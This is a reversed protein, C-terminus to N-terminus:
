FKKWALFRLEGDLLFLQLFFNMLIRIPHLHYILLWRLRKSPSLDLAALLRKLSVPSFFVIHAEKKAERWGSRLLRANLGRINPTSFYCWGGTKLRTSLKKLDDWPAPLHEIVQLSIVGDFILDAPLNELSPYVPLGLKQIHDLGYPEIGVAEAGMERLAKLLDGKGAGFELIKLGKLNPRNLEHTLRKVYKRALLLDTTGTESINAEPEAWGKTYFRNLDPPEPFPNRFILLCHQCQWLRAKSWYPKIQSKCFLCQSLNIM